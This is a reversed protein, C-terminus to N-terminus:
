GEGVWGVGGWGVGGWGVRGETAICDNRSKTTHRHLRHV